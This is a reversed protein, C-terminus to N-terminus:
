KLRSLSHEIKERQLEEKDIEFRIKPVPRIRMKRNLAQQIHYINKHLIELIEETGSADSGFVSFSVTAYFMDPSIAVRTLTVMVGAPMEIERDIIRGLEERLLVNLREIRRPSAM